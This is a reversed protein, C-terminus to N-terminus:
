RGIKKVANVISAIAPSLVLNAGFEILCTRIVSEIHPNDKPEIPRIVYNNIM